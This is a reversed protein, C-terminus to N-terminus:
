PTQKHVKSKGEAAIRYNKCAQGISNICLKWVEEFDIRRDIFRPLALKYLFMKLKDLEARPLAHFSGVGRVTCHIMIDPGFYAEKALRVALTPLKTKTLLNPNKDVVDQPDILKMYDIEPLPTNEKDPVILCSADSSTDSSLSVSKSLIRTSDDTSTTNSLTPSISPTPISNYSPPMVEPQHLPLGHELAYIRSKIQLQQQVIVDLKKM